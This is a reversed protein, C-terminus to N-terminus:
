VGLAIIRLDRIVPVKSSNTSTFVLKVQFQTFPSLSGGQGGILYQYDRFIRPNEDTPVSREIEAEVWPLESINDGNSTRYFVKIGAVSPRNAGFLIKLGVADEELSIPKTIHKAISSGESPDTENIFALPVNFGSTAASDQNDVVNNILFLSARQMDITPSVRSSTTSLNVAVTASRVGAGLESAENAANAIMRPSNLLNNEFIFVDTYNADKQYPTETGALSTGTTFKAAFSASTSNPVLVDIAPVFLDFQWNQTATVGDGGGIANSTAASDASFQYGTWDVATILRNGLLSTGSIGGVDEASDIDITVTDGISFGHNEHYITVTSSGSDVIIPDAELLRVPVSVNELVATGSSVTFNARWIRFTLDKTQDPEWTFGNQSKFLSGMTPQLTVRRETSGLLFQGIEAVFVNYDTSEALIVVAYETLPALFVPEDFEFSTVASANNSTNVSSPPLFKISGPVIETSSPHGNVMPRIQVQVPIDDDKTAFYLDVKTVYIGNPDEVFFSQGLPDAARIDDNDNSGQQIQTTVVIRRTSVIDAQRTEVVGSSTFLARAISTANSPNNVSIDLLTFERTGSRFRLTSSNPIVFSGTVVGAANTTLTSPTDPHQTANDLTNGYTTRNTSVNQFPESKVWNSVSVGDFFAFMRCNPRLGEARFYVKVSRMFPILAVDVVRDGVVQRITQTQTITTVNGGTRRTTAVNTAEISGVTTENLQASPNITRGAWNWQWNNWNRGLNQSIRIEGGDIVRAPIRRQEAWNDSAPSLTINGQHTIVAFPNVNETSTALSQNIQLAHEYKLYVNDGKLITNTSLDSDYVLEINESWFPPRLVRGDPDISAKYETSTTDSFFHDKFNDVLFGAKTRNLGASDLVDFNATDLELLSLTTLEELRDVRSELRGIDAMTYRRAEIKEVTMDANNLTFANLKINYLHLAGAPTPPLIPNLSSPGSIVKLKSNTDIILKSYRPQYYIVDTTILDTNQPIENVRANGGSFTNSANKVSRFDLVDRLEVVVGNTQRYAPIDAYDVQGTYSNVSFFDGSTGHAFYRFRVFVNGSPATQGGRLLLRGRDYHTDRQGNDLTFRNSLDVGDSDTQRIAEVDFIDAVGLNIFQLGAGDSDIAATVTTETLTKTRSSAQGKNVYALVEFDTSSLPGGSITASATGSGTVTPTTTYASDANSFFWQNTNAFTEGPATLTLTAVGSGNTTTLFRRQATLSIDSISQPRSNPLPFLLSSRATDKLVAKGNELVLNFYDNVSTGASVVNRFSQGSNMSIEFLSYRYNIGDEEVALIRATGITSGGYNAASRLNVTEFVNINRAGRGGTGVVYNGYNAAVVENSLTITDQARPIEIVTPYDVAARYGDVYAIGDSIKMDLLTQDSDNEEFSIIFPKVIYNGSEEKTRLALLDNIKNYDDTAQVEDVLVGNQIKAVYVFNQDSDVEDRTTVILRIRYRDAGPASFNPLAGANDYLANTDQITVIDQVVLFGVDATPTSSYKSIIKSQPVAYVFHEQVFFTGSAISVRTGTGVAPNDITNTSQVFFEYIGNDIEEGASMRIATAGPTGSTTDTYKVYLTVPDADEAPVVELVKVKVGSTQGTFTTGVLVNPNTPLSTGAALKIFEYSNNVTLGGPNVAAGEKFINRGFRAMEKQIITQLQTLERAQLLRGSNFLIRYYNDSDRYDDKYNSAFISSTYQNAM